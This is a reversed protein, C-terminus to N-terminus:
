ARVEYKEAQLNFLHAYKGNKRVLERHTGSEVLEGNDLVLIKNVATINSLRHSVLIAGKDAYLEEFKRFLEDESEADLSASPEDLIFMEPEHFFTRALAMKQWEGGSLEVGEKDFQRTLHTNVGYKFKSVFGAAGSRELASAIWVGDGQLEYDSLVVSEAVTFAYKSYDQFMTSFLKRYDEIVYDRIDIGNLLIIGETPDYFRLLLKIVTSKGSGNVGVLATKDPSEIVFSVNKLVFPLAEDYRFSVNRFELVFRAPDPLVTGEYKMQNRWDLFKVFNQIRNKNDSIQGYAYIFSFMSAMVKEAVGNYYSFDGVTYGGRFVGAGLNYIIVSNVIGPLISTIVLLGTYKFSAKQKKRFLNNWLRSYKEFIFPFLNYLKVENIYQRSQAVNSTYAIRRSLEMNDRQINYLAFLQKKQYILHPIVSVALLLALLLNFSSLYVLAVLLQILSRILDIISFSTNVIYISNRTADGMENYFTSSDFFAVDLGACKEMIVVNSYNQMVERHMGNVYQQVNDLVKSLLSVGFLFLVLMLFSNLEEMSNGNGNNVNLFATSLAQILRSFLYINLFPVFISVLSIFNSILFYKKSSKFSIKLCFLITPFLGRFDSKFKNFLKKM